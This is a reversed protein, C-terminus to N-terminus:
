AARNMERVADAAPKTLSAYRAVHHDSSGLQQEIATARRFYHSIALEDTLGMAGHLQVANQGVFRLADNVVIKAASIARAKEAAPASLRLTALQAASAALEAEIFMDVLRHQIVQFQSLSQCFQRRQRTYEVTDDLMRRIIGVAESCLGATAAEHAHLLAAYGQDVSCLLADRPLEVGELTIDACQRDDIMTLNHMALGPTDPKVLFLSIGHEDREGGDTRASVILYSAHSTGVCLGKFGDLRWGNSVPHATTSVSALCHRANPEWHALAFRSGSEILHNLTDRSAPTNAAELLRGCMLVSELWPETVLAEGLAEMVIMAEVAGGGFGGLVESFPAGVLGLEALNNWLGDDRGTGSRLHRNREEFSYSERLFRRVTDKLISQEESLSFDM